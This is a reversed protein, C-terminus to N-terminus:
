EELYPDCPIGSVVWGGYMMRGFRPSWRYWRPIRYDVDCEPEYDYIWIADLWAGRYMFRFHSNRGHYWRHRHGFSRGDRRGRFEQRGRFERREGRFERRDGRQNRDGRRVASDRNGRNGRNDRNVSSGRNDRNVSSGRDNGRNNNKQDREAQASPAGILVAVFLVFTLCSLRMIRRM